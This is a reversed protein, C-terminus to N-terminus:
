AKIKNLIEKFLEKPEFITQEYDGDFYEHIDDFRDTLLLCLVEFDYERQTLVLADIGFGNNHDLRSLYSSVITKLCRKATDKDNLNLVEDISNIYLFDEDAPCLSTPVLRTLVPYPREKIVEEYSAKSVWKDWDFNLEKSM